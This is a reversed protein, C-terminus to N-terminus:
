LALQVVPGDHLCQGSKDPLTSAPFILHRSERSDISGMTIAWGGINGRNQGDDVGTIGSAALALLRPFPSQVKRQGVQPPGDQNLRREFSSVESLRMEFSGVEGTRVEFSGVQSLCMKFPSVEEPRIEFSRVERSHM